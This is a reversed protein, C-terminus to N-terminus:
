AHLAYGFVSWLYIMVFLSLLGLFEAVFRSIPMVAEMPPLSCRKEKTGVCFYFM